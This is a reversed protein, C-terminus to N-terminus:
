LLASGSDKGEAEIEKKLGFHTTVLELVAMHLDDDLDAADYKALDEQSLMRELLPQDDFQRLADIVMKHFTARETRKYTLPYTFTVRQSNPLTIIYPDPRKAEVEKKLDALVLDVHPTDVAKTM